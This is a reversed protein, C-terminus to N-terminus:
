ARASESCLAFGFCLRWPLFWGRLYRLPPGGALRWLMVKRAGFRDVLFGGPIQCTTYGIFFASMVAGMAVPSLNFDKAIYPIATSIVMRDLYSVIWSWFLIVLVTYRKKWTFGSHGVM